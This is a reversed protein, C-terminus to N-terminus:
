GSYWWVGVVVCMSMVHLILTKVQHQEMHQQQLNEELVLEMVPWRLLQEMLVLPTAQQVLLLLWVVQVMDKPPKPVQFNDLSFGIKDFCKSVVFGHLYKSREFGIALKEV